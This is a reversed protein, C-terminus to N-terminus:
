FAEQLGFYLGRSGREGFGIDICLNTKSEKSFLIRLGAGGAPAVRDFLHQGSARDSVTTANVFAVMGILGNRTLTARYELEAYLLRDGRFHGEAYGRGSRGAPDGATAPLDFYPAQGTVVGDALAWLALRSRSDRSVAKYGRFELLLEQWTSDSGLWQVYPRLAASILSGRSANIVNDRTDRLLGVVPAVSTQGDPDFGQERTYVDYPTEGSSPDAPKVNRHASLHAGAGLYLGPRISVYGTESIRFRDFRMNVRGSTDTEMGLGLTDQSTWQLRNDGQFFFRNANTFVTLRAVLSVQKKVSYTFGMVTTSIGTTAPDGRFFDVSALAGFTLGTSPKSGITPTITFVIRRFDDPAPPPTPPKKLVQRILDTVDTEQGACPVAMAVWFIALGLVRVQRCVIRANVCPRTSVPLTVMTSYAPGARM